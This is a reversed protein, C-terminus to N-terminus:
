NVRKIGAFWVEISELLKDIPLADAFRFEPKYGIRHVAGRGSKQRFEEPTVVNNAVFDATSAVRSKAARVGLRDLRVDRWQLFSHGCSFVVSSERRVAVTVADSSDVAGACEYVRM